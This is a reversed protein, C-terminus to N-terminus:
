ASCLRALEQLQYFFNSIMIVILLRSNALGCIQIQLYIIYHINTFKCYM